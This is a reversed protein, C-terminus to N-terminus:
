LPTAIDSDMKRRMKEEDYRMIIPDKGDTDIVFYSDKEHEGFFMSVVSEVDDTHYQEKADKLSLLKYYAYRIGDDMNTSSEEISSYKKDNTNIFTSGEMTGMMPGLVRYRLHRQKSDKDSVIDKYVLLTLFIKSDM